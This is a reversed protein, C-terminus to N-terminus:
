RTIPSLPDLAMPDEVRFDNTSPQAAAEAAVPASPGRRRLWDPVFRGVLRITLLAIDM